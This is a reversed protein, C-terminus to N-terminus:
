EEVVRKLATLLEHVIRPSDKPFEVKADLGEWNIVRVHGMYGPTGFLWKGVSNIPIEQGTDSRGSIGTEIPHHYMHGLRSRAADRLFVKANGGMPRPLRIVVLADYGHLRVPFREASM